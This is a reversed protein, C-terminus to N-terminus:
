PLTTIIVTYRLIQLLFLTSLPQQCNQIHPGKNIHMIQLETVEPEETKFKRKKSLIMYQFHLVQTELAGVHTVLSVHLLVIYSSIVNERNEATQRLRSM